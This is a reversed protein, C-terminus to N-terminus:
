SARTRDRQERGKNREDLQCCCWCVRMLLILKFMIAVRPKRVEIREVVLREKEGVEVREVVLGEREGVEM